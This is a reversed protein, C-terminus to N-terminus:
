RIQGGGSAARRACSSCGGRRPAGQPLLKSVPSPNFVYGHCFSPDRECILKAVADDGIYAGRQKFKVMQVLSPFTPAQGIGPVPVTWGGVPKGAASVFYRHM